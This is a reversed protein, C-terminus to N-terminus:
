RQPLVLSGSASLVVVVLWVVSVVLVFCKSPTVMLTSSGTSLASTRENRQQFCKGTSTTSTDYRHRQVGAMRVVASKCVTAKSTHTSNQALVSSRPLRELTCPTPSPGHARTPVALTHSVGPQFMLAPLSGRHTPTVPSTAM